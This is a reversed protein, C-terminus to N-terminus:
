TPRAKPVLVVVAVDAAVNLLVYFAAILLAVSQVYPIDRVAVAQSLQQGLGPYAFVVETIIIGGILWQATLAVVQITPAIANRLAYQFNVRRDTLGYLRAAEVYPASLADLMGARVMRMVQALSAAVLTALPLVLIKPDQLPSAGIPPLSVAPLWGLWSAFVIVLVAGLVFEPVAIVAVAGLSLVRDLKGGGSRAAAVGLVVGLPVVFALALGALILSNMLPRSILAWVSAGHSGSLNGSASEGLDGHLIGGLWDLYQQIAPRGLDLRARIETLAEPTANRGLIARAADGPLVSTAGFVLISIVFVTAVGLLLRRICYRAIPHRDPVRAPSMETSLDTVACGSLATM